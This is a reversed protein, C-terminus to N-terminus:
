PANDVGQAYFYSRVQDVVAEVPEPAFARYLRALAHRKNCCPEAPALESAMRMAEAKTPAAVVTSSPIPPRPVGVGVMSELSMIRNELARLRAELENENVM